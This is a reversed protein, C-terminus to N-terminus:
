VFFLPLCKPFFFDSSLILDKIDTESFLWIGKEKGGRGEGCGEDSVEGSEEGELSM